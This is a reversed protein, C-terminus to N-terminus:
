SESYSKIEARPRGSSAAPFVVIGSEQDGKAVVPVQLQREVDGVTVGVVVDEATTGGHNVVTVEYSIGGGVSGAPTVNVRLAPPGSGYRVGAVVLSTLIALLAAISLALISVEFPTRERSVGRTKSPSM